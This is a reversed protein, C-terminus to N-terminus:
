DVRSRHHWHTGSRPRRSPELASGSASAKSAGRAAERLDQVTLGETALRRQGAGLIGGIVQASVGFEEAMEGATHTRECGLGFFLRLVKEQMPPLRRLRRNIGEMDV